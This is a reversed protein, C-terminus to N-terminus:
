VRMVYTDPLYAIGSPANPDIVALALWLPIGIPLPVGLPNLDLRGTAEGNPDLVQPGPRFLMPLWNNLTAVSLPDLNLNVHRGDPVPFGPRVGSMGAVLVYPKGKFRPASIRIDWRGPATKVTQLHRGRYFDFDYDIRGNRTDTAVWSTAFTARDVHFVYSTNHGAISSYGLGVWLPRAATQLDFDGSLILGRLPLSLTALTTRASTGRQLQYVQVGQPGELHGTRHNQPANYYGFWGHGLGPNWTHMSGDDRVELVPYQITTPAYTYYDDCVLYHGTDIDVGIHRTFRAPRGLALSTLFTTVRKQRDVKYLVHDSVYASGNWVLSQAGVLYDGDHNVFVKYPRFFRLTDPGALTELTLTAPDIRYLGAEPGTALTSTGNYKEATFVVRRNDADMQFGFAYSRPQVLTQVSQASADYIFIGRPASGTTYDGHGGGLYRSDHYTVAGQACGPRTPAAALAAVPVWLLLIGIWGRSTGAAAGRQRIAM